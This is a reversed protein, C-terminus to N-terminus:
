KRFLCDLLGLLNRVHAAEPHLVISYKKLFEDIRKWEEPTNIRAHLEKLEQLEKPMRRKIIRSAKWWADESYLEGHKRAPERLYSLEPPLKSWDLRIPPPTFEVDGSSFPAVGREKLYDFLEFLRQARPEQQPEPPAPRGEKEAQRRLEQWNEWRVWVEPIQAQVWESLPEVDDQAAIQRYVTAIEALQEPSLADIFERWEDKPDRGARTYKMVVDRVYNLSQPLGALQDPEDPMGSRRRRSGTDQRDPGVNHPLPLGPPAQPIMDRHGDLPKAVDVARHGKPGERNVHAVSSCKEDSASIEKRMGRRTSGDDDMKIVLRETHEVQQQHRFQFNM